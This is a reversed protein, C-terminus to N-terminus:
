TLGPTPLVGLYVALWYPLLYDLGSCERNPDSNNAIDQQIQQMQLTVGTEPLPPVSDPSFMLTVPDNQWIFEMISGNREYVPLCYPAIYSRNAEFLQTYPQAQDPWLTLQGAPDPFASTPMGNSAKAMGLRQVYEALTSQIEEKLPLGPNSGSPIAMAAARDAPLEVLIRALNFYANRHHATAYRLIDYAQRYNQRLEATDEALLLPLYAAHSLNFKYYGGDLPDLATVWLSLWIAASAAAVRAYATQFAQPNVSAGIRLLALQHEFGGLYSTCVANAPPLPLNWNNELLYSLLTTIHDQAGAQVDPDAVFQHAVYLGHFIGIYEDRSVPHDTTCDGGMGTGGCGVGRWILAPEVPGVLRPSQGPQQLAPAGAEAPPGLNGNGTDPSIEARQYYARGHLIESAAQWWGIPSDNPLASRAFTAGPASVASTRGDKVVEGSAVWFLRDIGSMLKKVLALSEPTSTAAYRYSAAALLHGTWIGSDEEDAYYEGPAQAAETYDPVTEISFVAGYPLHTAQLGQDILTATGDYDVPLPVPVVPVPAQGNPPVLGLTGPPPTQGGPPISGDPLKGIERPLGQGPLGTISLFRHIADPLPLRGGYSLAFPCSERGVPSPFTFSISGVLAVTTLMTPASMVPQGAGDVSPAPIAEFEVTLDATLAAKLSPDLGVSLNTLPTSVTIKGPAVTAVAGLNVPPFGIAGSGSVTLQPQVTAQTLRPWALTTTDLEVDAQLRAQIGLGWGVSPTEGSLLGLAEATVALDGTVGLDWTGTLPAAMTVTTVPSQLLPACVFGPPSKLDFTATVDKAVLSFNWGIGDVSGRASALPKAELGAAAQNAAAQIPSAIYLPWPAALLANAADLADLPLDPIVPPPIVPPRVPAAIETAMPDPM